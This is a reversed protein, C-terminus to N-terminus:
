RRRAGCRRAAGPPDGRGRAAALHAVVQASQTGVAQDCADGSGAAVPDAVGSQVVGHQDGVQVGSQKLGARAWSVSGSGGAGLVRRVGSGARV